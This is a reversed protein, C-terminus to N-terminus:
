YTLRDPKWMMRGYRTRSHADSGQSPEQVNRSFPMSNVSVKQENNVMRNMQSINYRPSTTMSEKQTYKMHTGNQINKFQENHTYTHNM